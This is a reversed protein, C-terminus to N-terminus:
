KRAAMVFESHTRYYDNETYYESALVLCVADDSFDSIDRWIMPPIYLGENKRSLTFKKKAVGDDLEVTFKGSIAIILQKLEKHAHAGRVSKFPIDYLYYIRKINFPIHRESEIFSLAGRGDTIKELEILKCDNLM